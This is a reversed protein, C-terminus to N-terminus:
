RYQSFTDTFTDTEHTVGGASCNLNDESRRSTRIKNHVTEVIEYKRRAIAFGYM